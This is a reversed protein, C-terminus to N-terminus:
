RSIRRRFKPCNLDYGNSFDYGWGQEEMQTMLKARLKDDFPPEYYYGAQFEESEFLRENNQRGITEVYYRLMARPSRLPNLFNLGYGKVVECRLQCYEYEPDIIRNDANQPESSKFRFNTGHRLRVTKEYDAFGLAIPVGGFVLALVQMTGTDPRFSSPFPFVWAFDGHEWILPGFFLFLGMVCLTGYLLVLPIIVLIVYIRHWGGAAWKQKVTSLFRKEESDYSNQIGIVKHVLKLVGFIVGFYALIVVIGILITLLDYVIGREIIILNRSIIILGLNSFFFLLVILDIYGLIFGQAFNFLVHATNDNDPLTSVGFVCGVILGIIAGVGNIRISPFSHHLSEVSNAGLIAETFFPILFFGLVTGVLASAIIKANM